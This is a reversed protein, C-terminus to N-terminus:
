TSAGRRRSPLGERAFTESQRNLPLHQGFKAELVGALLNPGARGRAIPQFGHEDHHANFLRRQQHGHAADFTDDIDLVIRRPVRRFSACHLDVRGVRVPARADCAALRDAVELRAEVGRLALVGADSSLGGGDFCAEVVKGSVPSLGPPLPTTGRM